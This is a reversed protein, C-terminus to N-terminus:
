FVTPAHRFFNFSGEDQTVGLGSTARWFVRGGNKGKIRSAESVPVSYSVGEITLRLDLPTVDTGSNAMVISMNTSPVSILLKNLSTLFNQDFDVFGVDPTLLLSFLNPVEPGLHYDSGVSLPNSGEHDLPVIFADTAINLTHPDPM